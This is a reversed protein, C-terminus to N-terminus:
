TESWDRESADALRPERTDPQACSTSPVLFLADLFRGSLKRYFVVRVQSESPTTRLVLRTESCRCHRVGFENGKGQEALQQHRLIGRVEDKSCASESAAVTLWGAWGRGFRGRDLVGEGCQKITLGDAPALSDHVPQTTCPSPMSLTNLPLQQGTNHVFQDSGQDEWELHTPHLEKYMMRVQPDDELCRVPASGWAEVGAM